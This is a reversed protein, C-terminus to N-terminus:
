RAGSASSLYGLLLRHRIRVRVSLCLYFHLCLWLHLWIRLCIRLRLRLWHNKDDGEGEDARGGREGRDHGALDGSVEAGELALKSVLRRESEVIRNYKEVVGILVTKTLDLELGATDGLKREESVDEGTGSDVKISVDVLVFIDEVGEELPSRPPQAAPPPPVM